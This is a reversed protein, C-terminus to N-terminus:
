LSKALPMRSSVDPAPGHGVGVFERKDKKGSVFDCYDQCITALAKELRERKEPTIVWKRAM